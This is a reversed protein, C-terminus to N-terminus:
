FCLVYPIVIDDRCYVFLGGEGDLYIGIHITYNIRISSPIVCQFIGTPSIANNRRNLRVVHHSRDRYLDGGEGNTRVREGNPFYWERIHSKPSNRCCDSQNTICLLARRGEGIETLTM